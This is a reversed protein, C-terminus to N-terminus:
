CSPRLEHWDFIDLEYDESPEDIALRVEYSAGPPITLFTGCVQGGALNIEKVVSQGDVVVEFDCRSPGEGETTASVTVEIPVDETNEYRKGPQRSAGRYSCWRRHLYRDIREAYEEMRGRQQRLSEQLATVDERQDRAHEQPADAIAALAHDVQDTIKTLADSTSAVLEDRATDRAEKIAEPNLTAIATTNAAVQWIGGGVVVVVSLVSGIKASWPWESLEAM